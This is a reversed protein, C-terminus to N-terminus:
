DMDEEEHLPLAWATLNRKTDLELRKANNQQQRLGAVDDYSNLKLLEEKRKKPKLYM